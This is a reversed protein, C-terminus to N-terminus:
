AKRDVQCRHEAMGMLATQDMFIDLGLVHEDVVGAVYPKGAEADRGTQRALALRRCGGSIM